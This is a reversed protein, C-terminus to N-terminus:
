ADLCAVFDGLEGFLFTGFIIGRSDHAYLKWKYNHSVNNIRVNGAVDRHVEFKLKMASFLKQIIKLPSTLSLEMYKFQNSNPGRNLVMYFTGDSAQTLVVESNHLMDREIEM